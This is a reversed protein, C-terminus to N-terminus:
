VNKYFQCNIHITILKRAASVAVLQKKNLSNFLTSKGVNPYGVLVANLLGSSKSSNKKRNAEAYESLFHHLTDTCGNDRLGVLEQAKSYLAATAKSSQSRAKKSMDKVKENVSRVAVTPHFRRLYNVWKEATDRSILDVKNLVLLIDKKGKGIVGDEFSLSRCGQPDRADLVIIVLAANNIANKLALQAQKKISLPTMIPIQAL